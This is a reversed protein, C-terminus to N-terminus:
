KKRKKEEHWALFVLCLIFAIIVPMVAATVNISEYEHYIDRKLIYTKITDSAISVLYLVGDGATYILCFMAIIITGALNVRGHKSTTELKLLRLIKYYWKTQGDDGM